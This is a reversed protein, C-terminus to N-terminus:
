RMPLWNFRAEALRNEYLKMLGEIGLDTYDITGAAEDVTDLTLTGNAVIQELTGIPLTVKQSKM